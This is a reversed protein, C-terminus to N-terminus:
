RSAAVPTPAPTVKQAGGGSIPRYAGGTPRQKRPSPGIQQDLNAPPTPKKVALEQFACALSDYAATQPMRNSEIMGNQWGLWYGRSRTSNPPPAGHFGDLYGELIDGDDLTYFDQVTEVSSFEAMKGGVMLTTEASIQQVNTQLKTEDM